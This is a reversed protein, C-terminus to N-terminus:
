ISFIILCDYTMLTLLHYRIIQVMFSILGYKLFNDCDILKVSVGSSAM